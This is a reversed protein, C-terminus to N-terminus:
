ECGDPRNSVCETTCTEGLLTNRTLGSVMGEHNTCSGLVKYAPRALEPYIGNYVRDAWSICCKGCCPHVQCVARPSSKIPAPSTELEYILRNCVAANARHGSYCKEDASGCVRKMM